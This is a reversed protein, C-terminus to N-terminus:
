RVLQSQPVGAPIGAARGVPNFDLALRMKTTHTNILKLVEMNEVVLGPYRNQLLRTLWAADVQEVREPLNETRQPYPRDGAAVTNTPM